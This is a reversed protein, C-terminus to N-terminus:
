AFSMAHKARVLTATRYNGLPLSHREEEDYVVEFDLSVQGLESVLQQEAEPDPCFFTIPVHGHPRTFASTQLRVGCELLHESLNARVRLKEVPRPTVHVKGHDIGHVQLTTLVLQHIEESALILGM